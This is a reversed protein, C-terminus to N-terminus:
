RGGSLWYFIPKFFPMINSVERGVINYIREERMMITANGTMGKKFEQPDNFTLWVEHLHKDPHNVDPKGESQLNVLQVKGKIEKGNELTFTVNLPHQNLRPDSQYTKIENYEADSVLIKGLMNQPNYVAIEISKALKKGVYKQAETFDAVGTFEAKYITQQDREQKLIQEERKFGQLQSNIKFIEQQAQNVRQTASDVATDKETLRSYEEQSNDGLRDSELNTKAQAQSIQANLVSLRARLQQTNSDLNMVKEESTSAAGADIAAQVNTARHQEKQRLEAIAGDREAQKAVVDQENIMVTTSRDVNRRSQDFRIIATQRSAKAEEAQRIAFQLGQQALKESEQANAIEQAIKRLKEDYQPDDTVAIAEGTKVETINGLSKLIHNPSLPVIQFEEPNPEISSPRSIKHDWPIFGIGAVAVAITGVMIWTHYSKRGDDRPTTMNSPSAAVPSTPIPIVSESPPKLQTPPVVKLKPIAHSEENPQM